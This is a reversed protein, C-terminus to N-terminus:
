VFGWHALNINGAKLHYFQRKGFVNRTYYVDVFYSLSENKFLVQLSSTLFSEIVRVAEKHKLLTPCHHGSPQLFPSIVPLNVTQEGSECSLDSRPFHFLLVQGGATMVEVSTGQIQLM